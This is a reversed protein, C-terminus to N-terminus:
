RAERATAPEHGTHVAGNGEALIVMAAYDRLGACWEAGPPGMAYAATAYADASAVDPGVVTVSLVGRPPSGTHPDVIHEGREYAGSTAIGVDSAVLVTALRDRIMPHQIGVRWSGGNWSHGRLRADGGANICYNRAGAKDLILRSRRSVM